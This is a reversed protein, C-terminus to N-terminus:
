RQSRFTRSDRERDLRGRIEFRSEFAADKDYTIIIEGTFASLTLGGGWSHTHTCSDFSVATGTVTGLLM